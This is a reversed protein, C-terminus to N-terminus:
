ELIIEEDLEIKRLSDNISTSTSYEVLNGHPKIKGHVISFWQPIDNHLIEGNFSHIGMGLNIGAKQAKSNSYVFSILTNSQNCTASFGISKLPINSFEGTKYFHIENTAWNILTNYNKIFGLGITKAKTNEFSVAVNKLKIGGIKVSDMKAFYTTDLKADGFIGVSKSGFGKAIKLTQSKKKLKMLIALASSFEGNSGTDFIVEKDVYGNYEIEIKPTGSIDQHFLVTEYNRSLSKLSDTTNTITIESKDFDIYWIAKRMMNAGIIGDVKLAKMENSKNIDVIAAGINTFALANISIQPLAVFNLVKKKSQSDTTNTQSIHKLKLEDALEQSIVTPAGTDLIFDHNLGNIKVNIIILGLRKSFPFTLKFNPQSTDGSKLVRFTKITKCGLSLIILFLIWVKKM